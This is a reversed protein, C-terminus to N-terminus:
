KRRMKAQPFQNLLRHVDKPQVAPPVFDYMPAYQYNALALVDHDCEKAKHMWNRLIRLGDDHNTRADWISRPIAYEGLTKGRKDIAHVEYFYFTKM